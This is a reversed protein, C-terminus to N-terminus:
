EVGGDKTIKQEGFFLAYRATGGTAPLFQKAQMNLIQEYFNVTAQVNRVTMVLHDLATLM